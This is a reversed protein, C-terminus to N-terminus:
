VVFIEDSNDDEQENSIVNGVTDQIELGEWKFPHLSFGSKGNYYNAVGEQIGFGNTKAYLMLADDKSLPFAIKHIFLDVSLRVVSFSDIKDFSLLFHYGKAAGLELLVRFREIFTDLTFPKRNGKDAVPSKELKVFSYDKTEKVYDLLTNVNYGEEISEEVDLKGQIRQNYMDEYFRELGLCVILSNGCEDKQIAQYLLEMKEWIDWIDTYVPVKEFYGESHKRYINDKTHFWIQVDQQDKMLYQNKRQFSRICSLILSLRRDINEGIILMNENRHESLKVPYVYALRCPTGLYILTDEQEYYQRRNKNLFEKKEFIKIEEEIESFYKLSNGDITIRNKGLYYFNYELTYKASEFYAKSINDLLKERQDKDIKFTKYRNIVEEYNDIDTKKLYKYIVQYVPVTSILNKLGADIDGTINLTDKIEDYANRMAFRSQIQKRATESLGALGSSYTQNSFVFNFGFARSEQLLKQLLLSYDGAGQGRTEALISAMVEFEDVMVVIRPMYVNVPIEDFQEFHNNSFWVKRKKMIANLKDLLDFVVEKASELVIYKIHPINMSIYPAFEKMNFDILWLDVDDPHYNQVISMIISHLLTSKGSGASGSIFAAFNQNTLDSYGIKGNQDIGFSVKFEKRAKGRDVAKNDVNFYKLYDAEVEKKKYANIVDQMFEESLNRVTPLTKFKFIDGIYAINNEILDIDLVTGIRSAQVKYEGEQKKMDQLLIFVIGFRDANNALMEIKKIQEESYRKPFDFLVLLRYTIRKDYDILQNYEAVSQIEQLLEENERGKLLVADLIEDLERVEKAIHEVVGGERHYFRGLVGLRKSSWFAPDIFSINVYGVPFKRVIHLLINQFCTEAFESQTSDYKICMKIEAINQYLPIFVIGGDFNEGLGKELYYTDEPKIGINYGCLGIPVKLNDTRDPAYGELDNTGKLESSYKDVSDKLMHIEAGSLYIHLEECLTSLRNKLVEIRERGASVFNQVSKEKEMQRQKKQNDIWLFNSSCLLMLENAAKMRSDTASSGNVVKIWIQKIREMDIPKEIIPTQSSYSVHFDELFEKAVIYYVNVKQRIEELEKDQIIVSEKLSATKAGIETNIQMIENEIRKQQNYNDQIKVKLQVVQGIIMNFDSM